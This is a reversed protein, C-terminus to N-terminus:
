TNKDRKNSERLDNYTKEMKGMEIYYNNKEVILKRNRVGMDRRLENNKILEIIRKALREPSKVPIIFGNIGDEIWDRNDPDETIIVPLESAMAEATSVALGADSLSTSIYIDASAIYHPLDSSSLWGTFFTNKDVKLNKALKQLAENQSGSGVIVFKADPVRKLVIPIARILTEIDYIPRLKRTSIIMLSTGIGLQNRLEYCRKQPNFNNTNTGFNNWVIKDSSAGLSEFAKWTKVGDCHLLDAKKITYSALLSFIKKKNSKLLIDSGWASLIYPHFKVFPIIYALSTIQHAHIIDPKIEKIYKKLKNILSWVRIINKPNLFDHSELNIVLVGEFPLKSVDSLTILSVEHGKDVFYKIWRLVHINGNGIFCLKM